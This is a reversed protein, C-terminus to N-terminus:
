VLLRDMIFCAFGVSLRVVHIGSFVSVVDIVLYKSVLQKKHEEVTKCLELVQQQLGQFFYFVCVCVCM